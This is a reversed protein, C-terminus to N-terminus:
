DVELEIGGVVGSVFNYLLSVIFGGVFGIVGYFLPLLLFAGRFLWLEAGAPGGPVGGAFLSFLSLVVGFILGLGGYIAALVRALSLPEIRKIIM